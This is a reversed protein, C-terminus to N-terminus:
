LSPRKEPSSSLHDSTSASEADTVGEDALLALIDLDAAAGSWNDLVKLDEWCPEWNEPVARAWREPLAKGAILLQEEEESDKRETACACAASYLARAARRVGEEDLNGTLNDSSAVIYFHAYRQCCPGITRQFETQSATFTRSGWRGSLQTQSLSVPVQTVSGDHVAQWFEAATQDAGSIENLTAVVVAKSLAKRKPLTWSKGKGKKKGSEQVDSEDASALAEAVGNPAPEPIAPLEGARASASTAAAPHRARPAGVADASAPSSRAAAAATASSVSRVSAAARAPASTAVSSRAQKIHRVVQTAVRTTAAKNKDTSPLSREISDVAAKMAAEEVTAEKAAAARAAARVAMEQTVAAPRVAPVTGQRGGTTLADPAHVVNPQASTNVAMSRM